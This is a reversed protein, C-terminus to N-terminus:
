LISLITAGVALLVAIQYANLREVEGGAPGKKELSLKENASSGSKLELVTTRGFFGIAPLYGTINTGM